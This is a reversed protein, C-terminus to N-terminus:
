ERPDDSLAKKLLTLPLLWTGLSSVLWIILSAVIWTTIGGTIQIGEGGFMTAIFLAVLTSIIGIGGLLAPAYRRAMKFVFPTLILQAAAFILVALVFGLPRVHVDDLLWAAVAFGLAASVLSIGARILMRIM